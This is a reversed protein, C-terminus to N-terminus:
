SWTKKISLFYNLHNKPWYPELHRRNIVSTGYSFYKKYNTGSFIYPHFKQAIDLAHQPFHILKGYTWAFYDCSYELKKELISKNEQIQFHLEEENLDALNYHDMTHSGIVHGREHLEKIQSWNMPTKTDIRIRDNFATRYVDDSEVFNANIFFAGTTNYKELLPAIVHYCEEFGDDFTFAVYSTKKAPIKDVIMQTAEELSILTCSADLHKLFNEFIQYDDHGVLNPTVYHSNIIHVGPEPKKISGM